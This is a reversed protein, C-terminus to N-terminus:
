PDSPPVQKIKPLGYFKPPVASTPYLQKYKQTSLGGTQKINKLLTILKNKLQPTPDKHLVKYTNPDQLLAQAKNNYDQQDMVVMAVGKDATLVVRTNDQKLQTLAKCQALKLNCHRNHQQQKLFRNVDSRFEEVEQTPLKSSALETATIYADLPPYKPTIAFNPGKQLLSLQKSTLPTQSLNIVWKDTHDSCIHPNGSTPIAQTTHTTMTSTSPTPGMPTAPVNSTISTTSSRPSISSPVNPQGSLSSSNHDTNDFRHNHRNLNHYCGHRKYYLREFKNIQKTKIMEHQHEKNKNIFSRSRDLILDLDPDQVPDSVSIQDTNVQNHGFLSDKFKTYQDQRQKDLM